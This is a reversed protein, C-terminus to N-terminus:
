KFFLVSKRFLQFATRPKASERRSAKTVGLEKQKLFVAEVSEALELVGTSRSSHAVWFGSEDMVSIGIGIEYVGKRKIIKDGFVPCICM